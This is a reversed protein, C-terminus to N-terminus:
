VAELLLRDLLAEDESSFAPTVIMILVPLGDPPTIGRLKVSDKETAVHYMFHANGAIRDPAALDDATWVYHDMRETRAVIRVGLKELTLFFSEPRAIAALAHIPKGKLESPDLDTGVALPRFCIVEYRWPIFPGSFGNKRAIGEVDERIGEGANILIVDARGIASLPERLPGLPLTQHNGFGAAGDVCLINMRRRLRLHQFADDCVAVDAPTQM